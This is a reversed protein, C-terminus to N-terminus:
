IILCKFHSNIRPSFDAIPVSKLVNFHCDHLEIGLGASALQKLSDRGQNTLPLYSSLSVQEERMLAPEPASLVFLSKAQQEV